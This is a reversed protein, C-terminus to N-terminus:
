ALGKTLRMSKLVEKRIPEHIEHEEAYFLFKVRKILNHTVTRYRSFTAHFINDHKLNYPTRANWTQANSCVLFIIAGKM